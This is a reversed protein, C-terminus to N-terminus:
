TTTGGAWVQLLYRIEEDIEARSAVTQAIEERLLQGFRRRMRHLLVGVANEDKGLAQTLAAYSGGEGKSTLHPQLLDYFKEDSKQAYEKRLKRKAEAVTTVAWSLDFTDSPEADQRPLHSYREEAEAEDISVIEASGGRVQANERRWEDKLFNTLSALLFSRFRGKDRHVKRLFDQQFLHAFFGQTVDKATHGDVGRRRLFAYLPHWYRECLRNLAERAETSTPGGAEVITSWHTQTFQANGGDDEQDNRQEQSIAM